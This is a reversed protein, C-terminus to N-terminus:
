TGTSFFRFVWYVCCFFIRIIVFLGTVALCCRFPILGVSMKPNCMFFNHIQMANHRECNCILPTWEWKRLIQICIRYGVDLSNVNLISHDWRMGDSDPRPPVWALQTYQHKEFSNDEIALCMRVISVVRVYAISITPVHSNDRMLIIVM